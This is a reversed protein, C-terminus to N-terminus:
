NLKYYDTFNISCGGGYGVGRGGCARFSTTLGIGGYNGAGAHVM